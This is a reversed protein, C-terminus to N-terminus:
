SATRPPAATKDNIIPIKISKTVEGPAFVLTGGTATYDKSPKATGSHTAYQVTVVQTSKARLNVTFEAHGATEYVSIETPGSIGVTLPTQASASNAIVLTMCVAMCYVAHRLTVVNLNRAYRTM